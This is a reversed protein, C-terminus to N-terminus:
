LKTRGLIINICVISLSSDEIYPLLYQKKPIPLLTLLKSYISKRNSKSEKSLLEEIM